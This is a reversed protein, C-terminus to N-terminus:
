DVFRLFDLRKDLMDIISNCLSMDQTATTNEIYEYLEQRTDFVKCADENWANPGIVYGANEDGEIIRKAYKIGFRMKPKLEKNNRNYSRIIGVDLKGENYVLKGKFYDSDKVVEKKKKEVKPLLHSFKKKITIEQKMQSPNPLILNARLIRGDNTVSYDIMYGNELILDEINVALKLAEINDRDGNFNTQFFGNLCRRFVGANLELHKQNMIQREGM